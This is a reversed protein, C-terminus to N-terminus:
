EKKAREGDKSGEAKAKERAVLTAERMKLLRQVNM